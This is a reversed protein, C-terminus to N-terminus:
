LPILIKVKMGFPTPLMELSGKKRKEKSLLSLREKFIQLGFSKRKINSEELGKNKLSFDENKNEIEIQLLDNVINVFLTIKGKIQGQAVGHWIANEVIPQLLLPPIQIEDTDINEEVIFEYDFGNSVRLKELDMYNKLMDFEDSLPIYEKESSELVERMLKGFKALYNEAKEPHENMYKQISALANFIFHPNLQSRLTKNELKNVELNHKAKRRNIILLLILLLVGSGLIISIIVIKQKQIEERARADKIQQKAKELAEKEDFNYQMQLQVLKQTNEQSFISDRYFIYNKYNNLAAKYDNKFIYTDALKEYGATIVNLAGIEKALKIADNFNMLASEYKNQKLYIEGINLYAKSIGDRSKIEKSLKLAEFNNALGKTYNGQKFNIEALSLKASIIGEKSGWDTYNKLALLTSKEAEAYKGQEIYLSGINSQLEGLAFTDKTEELIKAAISFCKMTKDYEKQIGYIIGINMSSSVLVAKTNTKKSYDAAILYNKLAEVYNGLYFYITGKNNYANACGSIYHISEGLQISQNAYDIAATYDSIHGYYLALKYLTIVRTTDHKANKLRLKLEEIKANQGIALNCLLLIIFSVLLINKKKVFTKLQQYKL